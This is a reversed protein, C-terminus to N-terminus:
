QEGILTLLKATVEEMTEDPALGIFEVRRQRWDLSRVQDSLVVGSIEKTEVAVEFSLGKQRSTIPCFL